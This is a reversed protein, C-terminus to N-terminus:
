RPQDRQVLRFIGYGDRPQLARWPRHGLCHAARSPAARQLFEPAAHAHHARHADAEKRQVPKVVFALMLPRLRVPRGAKEVLVRVPRIKLLEGIIHATYAVHVRNAARHHVASQKIGYLLKVAVHGGSLRVRVPQPQAAKEVATEVRKQVPLDIRVHDVPVANEAGFARLTFHAHARLAKARQHQRGTQFPVLRKKRRHVRKSAAAPRKDKYLFLRFDRGLWKGVARMGPQFVKRLRDGAADAAVHAHQRSVRRHQIHIMAVAARFALMVHDGVALVLAAGHRQKQVCFPLRIQKRRFRPPCDGRVRPLRLLADDDRQRKLRVRRKIHQESCSKGRLILRQGGQVGVRGHQPAPAEQRANSCIKKRALRRQLQGDRTIRVLAARLHNAYSVRRVLRPTNAAVPACPACAPNRTAGSPHVFASRVVQVHAFRQRKRLRGLAGPQAQARDVMRLHIDVADAHQIRFAMFPRQLAINTQRKAGTFVQDGHM